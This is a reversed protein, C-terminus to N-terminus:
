RHTQFYWNQCRTKANFDPLSVFVLQITHVQVKSRLASFKDWVRLQKNVECGWVVQTMSIRVWRDGGRGDGIDDEIQVGLLAGLFDIRESLEAWSRWGKLKWGEHTYLADKMTFGRMDYRTDWNFECQTSEPGHTSAIYHTLLIWVISPVFHYIGWSTSHRSSRWM